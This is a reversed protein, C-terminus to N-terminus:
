QSFILPFLIRMGPSLVNVEMTDTNNNPQADSLTETVVASLRHSGPVSPVWEFWVSSGEEEAAGVFVQKGAILAGGQKPDGDFVLVHSFETGPTDSHVTVRIELPRGAMTEVPGTVLEGEADVAALGSEDM